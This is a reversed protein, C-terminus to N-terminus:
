TTAALGRRARSLREWFKAEAELLEALYEGDPYVEIVAWREAPAFRKAGSHSVYWCLDADSVYLAHQVQAVEECPLEGGLVLEHGAIRHQASLAVADGAWTLGGLTARLWPAQDHQCSAPELRWGVRRALEAIADTPGRCRFHEPYKPDPPVPALKRGLLENLARLAGPRKRAADMITPADTGTIGHIRWELWAPSGQVLHIIM